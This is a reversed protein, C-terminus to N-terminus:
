ASIVLRSSPIACCTLCTGDEITVGPKTQYTVTGSKVAVACTGCNGARCGADLAIGQATALDLLTGEEAKWSVTRGSKEFVVELAGAVSASASPDAAAVKKVSAPGFAEYHIHSAPVGWEALAPVLTSMMAPPGCIYFRYNNSPLTRRLLDINVHGPQHYDRGAVDTAEPSSYCVHVQLGPLEQGLRQLEEKFPHQRGYRFGLIVHTELAIREAALGHLMALIPTIGIGGGIFVAPGLADRDLWFGGAPARVDLIDGENVQEHFFTSGLGSPCDAVGTPAAMRKVSVRYGEPRLVDSLSYCRVISKTQGPVPLLFTLFQGPKFPPLRRRDHPALYVSCIDEAEHVKRIVEFKRWGAWAIEDAVAQTRRRAADVRWALLESDLRRRVRADERRRTEDFVLWGAQAAAAAVILSGGIFLPDPM